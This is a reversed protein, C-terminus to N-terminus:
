DIICVDQDTCVMPMLLLPPSRPGGSKIVEGYSNYKAICNVGTLGRLCSHRGIGRTCVTHLDVSLGTTIIGFSTIGQSQPYQSSSIFLQDADYFVYM